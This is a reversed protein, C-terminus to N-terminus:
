DVICAPDTPTEDCDIPDGDPPPEDSDSDDCDEDLGDCPVDDDGPPDESDDDDGPPDESDDDGPPDESDDDGPPDESDDDGPPDCDVDLGGCPPDDDDNDGPDCEVDPADVRQGYGPGDGSHNAGAKVWVGVVMQGNGAFANVNGSQGDFKVRTGDAYEVVLNSLDKCTYVIIEDCDFEVHLEGTAGGQTCELDPPLGAEDSDEDGDEVPGEGAGGEDVVLDQEGQGQGGRLAAASGGNDTSSENCGYSAISLCAALWVTYRTPM